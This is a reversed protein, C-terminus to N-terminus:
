SVFVYNRVAPSFRRIARFTSCLFAAGLGFQSLLFFIKNRETAAFCATLRFSWFCFASHHFKKPAFPSGFSINPALRRPFLRHRFKKQISPSDIAINPALRGPILRRALLLPKIQLLMECVKIQLM